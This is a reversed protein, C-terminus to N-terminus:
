LTCCGLPVSSCVQLRRKAEDADMEKAKPTSPQQEKKFAAAERRRGKKSQGAPQGADSSVQGSAHGGAPAPRGMTVYFSEESYKGWEMTGDPLRRGAGALARARSAM